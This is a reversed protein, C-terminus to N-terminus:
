EMGSLFKRADVNAPNIVLARHFYDRAEDNRDSEMLLFGMFVYADSYNPDIRIAQSLHHMAEQIRKQRFMVAAYNYHPVALNPDYRIAQRYHFAAPGMRGMKALTAGMNSHAMGFAPKLQLARRLYAGGKELDGEGTYIAGLSNMIVPNDETVSLTHHFLTKSNRWHGVQRASLVGLVALALIGGTWLMAKGHRRGSLLDPIGWAAILFLGILPVYSYRDAMGQNGVQVLGVVPVLTGLYAFWGVFLYPRKRAYRVALYSIGVLVILSGFIQVPGLSYEPHPYYAALQRPWIAKMPYWLYAAIANFVRASMPFAATTKLVGGRDRPM